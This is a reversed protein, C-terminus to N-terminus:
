GFLVHLLTTDKMLTLNKEGYYSPLLPWTTEKESEEDTEDDSPEEADEDDSDSDGQDDLALPAVQTLVPQRCEFSIYIRRKSGEEGEEYKFFCSPKDFPQLVDFHQMRILRHEDETCPELAEQVTPLDAATSGRTFFEELQTVDSYCGDRLLFGKGRLKDSNEAWFDLIQRFPARGRLKIIELLLFQDQCLLAKPVEMAAGKYADTTISLMLLKRGILLKQFLHLSAEDLEETITVSGLRKLSYALDVWAENISSSKFLFNYYAYPFRQIVKQSVKEEKADLKNMWVKRVFKKPVAEIEELTDVDRDNCDYMLLGHEERGDVVEVYYEARHEFAFRALKGYKGCLEKAAWLESTSSIDCLHDYFATPIRNM